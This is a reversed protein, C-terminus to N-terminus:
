QSRIVQIATELDRLVQSAEDPTITFSELGHSGSVSVHFGENGKKVAVTALWCLLVGKGGEAAKERRTTTASKRKQARAAAKERRQARAAAKEQKAAKENKAQAENQDKAM